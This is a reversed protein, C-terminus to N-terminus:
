GNVKVLQTGNDRGDCSEPNAYAESPKHYIPATKEKFALCHKAKSATASPFRNWWHHCNGQYFPYEGGAGRVMHSCTGHTHRNPGYNDKCKHCSGDSSEDCNRNWYVCRGRSPSPMYNGTAYYGVDDGRTITSCDDSTGMTIDQGPWAFWGNSRTQDMNSQM